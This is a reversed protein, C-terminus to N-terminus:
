GARGLGLPKGITYDFVVTVRTSVRGEDIGRKRLEAPDHFLDSFARGKM